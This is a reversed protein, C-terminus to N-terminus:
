NWFAGDPLGIWDSIRRANKIERSSKERKIKDM